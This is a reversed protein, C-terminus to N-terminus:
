EKVIMKNIDKMRTWWSQLTQNSNLGILVRFLDWRGATHVYLTHINTHTHSTTETHTHTCLTATNQMLVAARIRVCVFVGLDWRGRDASATMMQWRHCGGRNLRRLDAHWLLRRTGLWGRAPFRRRQQRQSIDGTNDVGGRSEGVWGIDSISQKQRTIPTTWTLNVHARRILARRIHLLPPDGTRTCRRRRQRKFCAHHGAHFTSSSYDAADRPSYIPWLSPEASWKTNQCITRTLVDLKRHPFLFLFLGSDVGSHASLGLEAEWEVLSIAFLLFLSRLRINTASQIRQAVRGPPQRAPHSWARCM